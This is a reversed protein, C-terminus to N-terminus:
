LEIQYKILPYRPNIKTWNYIRKKIAMNKKNTQKNKNQKNTQKKNNLTKKIVPECLIDLRDQPQSFDASQIVLRFINDFKTRVQNIRKRSIEPQHWQSSLTETIHCDFQLFDGIHKSKRIVQLTVCVFLNHFLSFIKQSCFFLKSWFCLRGGKTLLFLAFTGYFVLFFSLNPDLLVLM